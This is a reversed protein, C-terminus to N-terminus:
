GNSAAKRARVVELWDTAKRQYWTREVICSRLKASIHTLDYGNAAQVLLQRETVVVFRISRAAHTLYYEYMKEAYELSEDDQNLKIYGM